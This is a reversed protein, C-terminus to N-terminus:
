VLSDKQIVEKGQFCFQELYAGKQCLSQNDRLFSM